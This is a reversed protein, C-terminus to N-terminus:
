FCHTCTALSLAVSAVFTHDQAVPIHFFIHEKSLPHKQREKCTGCAAAAWTKRKQFIHQVPLLTGWLWHLQFNVSGWECHFNGWECSTAVTLLPCYGMLGQSFTVTSVSVAPVHGLIGKLSFMESWFHQFLVWEKYTKIVQQKHLKKYVVSAKKGRLERWTHGSSFHAVRFSHSRNKLFPLSPHISSHIIWFSWKGGPAQRGWAEM